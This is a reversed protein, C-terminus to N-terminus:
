LSDPTRPRRAEPAVRPRLPACSRGRCAAVGPAPRGVEMKEERPLAFFARGERYIGGILADDVGHGVIGFFGVDECARAIAEVVRHKGSGGASFPAIDIVPVNADSAAARERDPVFEDSSM